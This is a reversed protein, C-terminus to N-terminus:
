PKGAVPVQRAAAVQRFRALLLAETDDDVKAGATRIVDGPLAEARRRELAVMGCVFAGDKHAVTEFRVLRSGQLTTNVLQRSASKFSVTLREARGEQARQAFTEDMAEIRVEIQQALVLRAKATVQQRDISLNGSADVCDTGALEGAAPPELVWGPWSSAAPQALAATAAGAILWAAVTVRAAVAGM